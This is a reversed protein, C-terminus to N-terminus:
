NPFSSQGYRLQLVTTKGNVPVLVIFLNDYVSKHIVMVNEGDGFDKRLMSVMAPVDDSHGSILVTRGQYKKLLSDVFPQLDAYIKYDYINISLGKADAVPRATNKTRLTDTSFIADLKVDRLVRALEKARISGQDTLPIPTEGLLRNEEAHRVLIITTPGNEQAWSPAISLVLLMLTTFVFGINRKMNIKKVKM